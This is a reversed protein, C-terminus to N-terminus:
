RANSLNKVVSEVFVKEIDRENIGPQWIGDVKEFYNESFLIDASYIPEPSSGAENMENLFHM